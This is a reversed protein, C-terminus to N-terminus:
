LRPNAVKLGKEEARKLIEIKKKRGVTGSVVIINGKKQVGELDAPRSVKIEALGQRNLGRVSKPSGYGPSPMKGRASEKMRLKSHRGKPKRWAKKLTAMHKGEQRLFKPKKAKTKRRAKLSANAEM